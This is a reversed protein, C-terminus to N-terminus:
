QFAEAERDLREKLVDTLDPAGAVVSPSVLLVVGYQEAIDQM